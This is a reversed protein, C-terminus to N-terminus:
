KIIKRKGSKTLGVVFASNVFQKVSKLNDKAIEFSKFNGYYYRYWKGEKIEIVNGTLEEFKELSIAHGSAAVQIAYSMQSVDTKISKKAKDLSFGSNKTKYVVGGQKKIYRLVSKTIIQARQNIYDSSKMELAEEANSLYGVEILVSPMDTKRLVLFGAQKVGRNKLKHKNLEENMLETFYISQQFNEDKVMTMMIYSEPSFPDFNEYTSEYNDELLIVSNENKAVENERDLAGVGLTYIETGKIKPNRCSNAHISIFLDAKASNAIEARRNLEVFRDDMRTMIVRLNKYNKLRNHLVLSLNLVVDKEFTKNRIAGPDKGGHGADIVLVFESRKATAFLSLTSFCTFFLVVGIKTLNLYVNTNLVTIKM